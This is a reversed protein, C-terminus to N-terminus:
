AAITATGKLRTKFLFQAESSYGGVLTKKVFKILQVQGNDEASVALLNEGEDVHYIKSNVVDSKHLDGIVRILKYNVLDWLALHGKKHGSLLFSGDDSIELCTVKNVQGLQAEDTLPKMEQQTKLDFARIFGSSNGVFLYDQVM